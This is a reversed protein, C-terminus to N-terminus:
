HIWSGLRDWRLGDCQVKGARAGPVPECKRPLWIFLAKGKLNKFPVGGWYRSDESHDRNDGMVFFKEEPVLFTQAADSEFSSYRVLYEVDGHTERYTRYHYDRDDTSPRTLEEHPLLAGNVYVDHGEVRIEDGPLGMVRKIYDRKEDVPNIFVVVDGRQVDKFKVPWTRTFPIRLGYVFKSVFVHDGILLTPIMSGTPIKFAEVVFARLLLAIIIAVGFSEVNERFKSKHRQPIAEIEENERLSVM